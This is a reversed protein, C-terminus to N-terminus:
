GYDSEEGITLIIEWIMKFLTVDIMFMWFM